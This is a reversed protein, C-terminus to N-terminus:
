LTELQTDYKDFYKCSVMKIQTFMREYKQLAAKREAVMDNVNVDM